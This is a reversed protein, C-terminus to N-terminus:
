GNRTTEYKGPRSCQPLVTLGGLERFAYLSHESTRLYMEYAMHKTLIM